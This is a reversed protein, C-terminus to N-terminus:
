GSGCSRGGRRPMGPLEPCPYLPGPSPRGPARDQRGTAQRRAASPSRVGEPRSRQTEPDHPRLPDRGVGWRPDRNGRAGRHDRRRAAPPGAARLNLASNGAPSCRVWSREGARHGEVADDTIAPVILRESGPAYFRHTREQLSVHRRFHYPPKAVSPVGNSGWAEQPEGPMHLPPGEVVPCGM